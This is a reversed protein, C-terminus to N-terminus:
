CTQLCIKKASDGIWGYEDGNNSLRYAGSLAFSNNNNLAREYNAYITGDLFHFLSIKVLIDQSFVFTVAMSLCLILTIKKM